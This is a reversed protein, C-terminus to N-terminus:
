RLACAGPGRPDGCTACSGTAPAAATSEARGVSVVSLLREVDSAACSPCPPMDDGFVLDEFAHACRRWRYEHLPM